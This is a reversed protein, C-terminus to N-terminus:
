YIDKLNINRLKDFIFPRAKKHELDWVKIFGDKKLIKTVKIAKHEYGYETLFECIENKTKEGRVFIADVWYFLYNPGAIVKCKNMIADVDKSVKFFINETPSKELIPKEFTKGNFTLVTKMKALNGLAILRCKKSYKSEDLGKLYTEKSIWQRKYSLHWYAKNLDIEYLDKKYEGNALIGRNIYQISKRNCRSAIDNKVIHNKVQRILGLEIPKLGSSSTYFYVKGNWLIRKTLTTSVIQFKEGRKKLGNIFSNPNVIRIM